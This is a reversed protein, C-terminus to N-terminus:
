KDSNNDNKMEKILRSLLEDVGMDDLLAIPDEKSAGERIPNNPRFILLLDDPTDVELETLFRAYTGLMLAMPTFAGIAWATHIAMTACGLDDDTPQEDSIIRDQLADFGTKALANVMNGLFAEDEIRVIQALLAMKMQSDGLGKTGNPLTPNYGDNDPDGLLEVSTMIETFRAKREKTNM